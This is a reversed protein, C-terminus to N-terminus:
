KEDVVLKKNSPIYFHVYSVTQQLLYSFTMKSMWEHSMVFTNYLGYIVVVM